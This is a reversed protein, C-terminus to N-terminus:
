NNLLHTCLGIYLRNDMDDLNVQLIKEVKEIRYFLTSRHIFLEHATKISHRENKLYVVLTKYFETKNKADYEILERLGPPCLLEGPFDTCCCDLMYQLIYTDFRHCWFNSNIKEGYELALSAQHYYYPLMAFNDYVTSVGAKFLGERILSALLSLCEDGSSGNSTLNVILLICEQYMFSYSGNIVSEIHNCTSIIAMKDIENQTNIIKICLYRDNLKWSFHQINNAIIQSDTLKKDLIDALVVEFPRSFSGNELNHRRIAIQVMRAFYEIASYQGQKLPTNLEDICIRGEYKGMPNWLNIYLVRYDRLNNSFLQAGNTSLTHIYEPDVKFDNIIDLPLMNKGTSEDKELILMGDVYAPRAIVYFQQDHIFLPNQFYDLSVRCLEDVGLNHNLIYQLQEDWKRCHEFVNQIQDFLSYFDQDSDATEIISCDVSDQLNPTSGSIVFSCGPFCTFGPLDVARSLYVYDKSLESQGYYIRVGIFQEKHDTKYFSIPIQEDELADKIIQMNIRFSEIRTDNDM